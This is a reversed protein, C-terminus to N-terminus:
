YVATYKILLSSSPLSSSQSGRRSNPQSQRNEEVSKVIQASGSVVGSLLAGVSIVGVLVAAILVMKILFQNLIKKERVEKGASKNQKNHLKRIQRFTKILKTANIILYHIAYMVIMIIHCFEAYIVRHKLASKM